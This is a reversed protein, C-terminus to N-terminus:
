KVEVNDLGFLTIESGYVNEKSGFNKTISFKLYQFPQTVENLIFNHGEKAIEIYVEPVNNDEDKPDEIEYEGVLAWEVLDNSIYINFAKLNEQQYYYPIASVGQNEAGSYWYARQWVIFRDILVHKNLNIVIDLTGNDLDSGGGQVIFYSNDNPDDHTDVVDDFFNITQGEWANGNCSLNSVLSWSDKQIKEEFKPIANTIFKKGSKIGIEDEVDASFEYEVSDLGIINFRYTSFSSSMIKFTDIDHKKYYLWVHVPNESPNTWSVKVGGLDPVIEISEQVQFIYSELPTVQTEVAESKNNNRDYVYLKINKPETDNFGTVEITDNYHSSVKFVENGLANTYKAKVFLVDEDQPLTYAIKAGGYTPVIGTITLKGPPTTDIDEKKDCSFLSIIILGPLILKRIKKMNNNKM